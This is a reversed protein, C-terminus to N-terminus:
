LPPQLSAMRELVDAVYDHQSVPVGLRESLQEIVSQELGFDAVASEETLMIASIGALEELADVFLPRWARFQCVRCDCDAPM